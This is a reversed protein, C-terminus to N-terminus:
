AADRPIAVARLVQMPGVARVRDLDEESRVFLTGAFGLGNVSISGVCARSRPVVLMWRRRVLLNYPASHVEGDAAAAASIGCRRLLERYVDQLLPATVQPRLREFAHRFVLRAGGGLVREMPVDDPSEPALPLPVLQLHKRPQSAGAEVGGNYFGLGDVESLCTILAAFDEVALLREQREFRRTVLLVHGALLPFRNLLVYHSPGLDCVFLTPDYDGLPDAAPAAQRAEDKHTLSSVARVVFRVGDSDLLLPRTEIPQLTGNALARRTAEQVISLSFVGGNEVSRSGNPVATHL